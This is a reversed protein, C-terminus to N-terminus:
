RARGVALKAIKTVDAEFAAAEQKQQEYEKETYDYDGVNRENGIKQVSPLFAYAVTLSLRADGLTRKNDHGLERLLLQSAFLEEANLMLSLMSSEGSGPWRSKDSAKKMFNDVNM